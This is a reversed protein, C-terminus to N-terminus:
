KGHRARVRARSAIGHQERQRAGQGAPVSGSSTAAQAANATLGNRSESASAGIGDRGSSGAGVGAM